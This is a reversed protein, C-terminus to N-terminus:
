KAYLIEALHAYAEGWKENPKSNYLTKDLVHYRGNKVATLSSWAPNTTLLKEVNALGAKESGQTTVFIFDPDAAVIAEISLDELASNSDAINVTDLDALIEGSVTGESGKVKVSTSAARIFLVRPKSGNAKAKADAIQKSVETVNQQYLDERGTINTLVKMMDAYDDFNDVDFYAVTIGAQEFTDKLAVQGDMAQTAIIFDPATSIIKEADPTMHSGVDVVSPDLTYDTSTFSDSVAGVVEGGALLWEDTFSGLLSVVRKPHDVTVSRGLADTFTVAGNQAQAAEKTNNKNVSNAGCATLALSAALILGTIVTRKKM